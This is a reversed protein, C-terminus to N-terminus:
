QSNQIDAVKLRVSKLLKKMKEYKGSSNPLNEHPIHDSINKSWADAGPSFKVGSISKILPTGPAVPKPSEASDRVDELESLLLAKQKELDDLSQSELSPSNSGSSATQSAPAESCNDPLRKKFPDQSTDSSDEDSIDMDDNTTEISRRKRNETIPAQKRKLSGQVQGPLQKKWNVKLHHPMLPPYGKRASDDKIDKSPIVNFGPFDIIRKFDYEIGSPNHHRDGGVVNGESDLLNVGSTEDQAELLWAPPYGIVRMRYIYEPLGNDRMGLANRLAQSPEGPKFHGFRSDTDIELHYRNSKPTITKSQLFQERNWAIKEFNRPEKCNAMNHDGDCNWCQNKPKKKIKPLNEINTSDDEGLLGVDSIDFDPTPSGNTRVESNEAAITPVFDVSFAGHINLDPVNEDKEKNIEEEGCLLEQLFREIKDRFLKSLQNNLFKVTFLASPGTNEEDKKTQEVSDDKSKKSQGKESINEVPITDAKTFSVNSDVSDQSINNSQEEKDCPTEQTNNTDSPIDLDDCFFSLIDSDSETSM